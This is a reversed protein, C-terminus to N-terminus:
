AAKKKTNLRIAYESLLLPKGTRIYQLLSAVLFKRFCIKRLHCTQAISMLIAYAAAGRKSMSGGSVKRKLVGKRIIYEAFNNHNSM